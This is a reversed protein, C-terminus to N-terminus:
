GQFGGSRLLNLLNNQGEKLQFFLRTIQYVICGCSSGHLFKVFITLFLIQLVWYLFAILFSFINLHSCRSEFGCGSLEYVFVSGHNLTRKRFLHNHTRTGNRDSLSWIERRNRVLLEKVNLCSCLTSESQFAYM